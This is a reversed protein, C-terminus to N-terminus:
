NRFNCSTFRGYGEDIYCQGRLYEPVPYPRGDRGISPDAAGFHRFPQPPTARPAPRPKKRTAAASLDTHWQPLSASREAAGAPSQPAFATCGVALLGFLLIRARM